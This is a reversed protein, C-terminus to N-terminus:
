AAEELYRELAQRVKARARHLLVRQNSESIELTNCIEQTDWGEVDRLTIVTRQAPPLADIATQTRALLERRVAREELTEARWAAPDTQWHGAWEDGAPLFREPDEALGAADAAALDSFTLTRGARKGHTIATNVLIRFLWTKLSARGEFRDLSRLARVWTEQAADEAAAPSGTYAGALRVLSTHYKEVLELFAAEDGARLRQLLAREAPPPTQASVPTM